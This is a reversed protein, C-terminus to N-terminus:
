VEPRGVVISEFERMAEDVSTPESGRPFNLSVTLTTRREGFGSFSSRPVKKIFGWTLVALVGVTVLLTAARWRLMRGLVKVYLRQARSRRARGAMAKAGLAPVMLLATFLSWGLAFVFAAAFPAFASRANGQLYLFPFLVVATTLTSGVVAPMIRGTAAARGDATDPASGLRNVVILAEQVLIGVGM